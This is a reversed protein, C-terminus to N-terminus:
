QYYQQHPSETLTWQTHLRYIALINRAMILSLLPGLNNPILMNVILVRWGLLCVPRFFTTRYEKCLMEKQSKQLDLKVQCLTIIL